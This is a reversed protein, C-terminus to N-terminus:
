LSILAERVGPFARLDTEFLESVRDRYIWEINGQLGCDFEREIQDFIWALKRGGAM